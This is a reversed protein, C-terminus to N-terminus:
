EVYTYDGNVDAVFNDISIYKDTINYVHDDGTQEFWSRKIGPVEAKPRKVKGSAKQGYYQLTREYTSNDGSGWDAELRRKLIEVFDPIVTDPLDVEDTLEAVDECKRLFLVSIDVGEASEKLVLRDENFSYRQDKWDTDEFVFDLVNLIVGQMLYNTYGSDEANASTTFREVNIQGEENLDNAVDNILRVYDSNILLDLVEPKFKALMFPQLRSYIENVTIAM